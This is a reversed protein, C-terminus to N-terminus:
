VKLIEEKEVDVAKGSKIEESCGSILFITLILVVLEKM